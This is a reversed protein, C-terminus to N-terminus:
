AEAHQLVEERVAEDKREEALSQPLAIRLVDEIRSAYHISVGDTQEPMLDEEVNQRNDAPLIVTTVGARKAALFKEKIGGVPLVNGSLTIEGTMATLPHVPRDTMLSVLATAMTVGASPGDKPIAGAPVHIHIDVNSTFEEDLGVKSANSRVWTLAAQMSEQMVEGIQGTMTFGGKGKMKNAEIFLVDGGAPTWALGVAVGARKTREAIETDVRVKIGGLFEQVIEKTIVLKETKGEAIRRAQKRCVTGILQELKRVGAERTYHRVIYSVAERPFDINEETIGNEKIQRPILYRFAIHTKEEETYGTLDIIEMRDLLPAPIPDLQNATCIFLVKSLDFPQDLYNDRFTNNQEPDLIELLASSPDGRFDRGLKDIEDLMFVPDNTGARRLNQIIQGPLAGIYTRRHGRLEAEDHMGGLSIRRFERDLAKAISRGLSTKGVGPPGVFCLIPGKMDPKLRRVALYDLIRDKVKKLDYHDADLVERAKAIDVASGSSKAWPLVALWEIYNRTLSYDAAMPSMRQLRSLEKLAEKKTEEPMGAAEIKQRLEEIDKQGEDQEGLEKQIAKMQERLYYDRQSQQVQDQVESQIKNRLQQVELEKALHKNLRELRATVDGTELLEQKDATSLFPLSSAIFDALRGADDINMAITQLEDSLTASATVIQQFQTLVNRQLAELAPGKAPMIEPVAEVSATMFPETQTFNGVKVRETGETFVFLSQNPMKVVKHITALAGYTYLDGPQPTDIRADRQAVVVISKEEGLSNILQISSERGVTLPLVAHPFLVTDRVPLVPLTREGPRDERKVGGPQIVSVFDSAM